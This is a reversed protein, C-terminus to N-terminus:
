EFNILKLVANRKRIITSDAKKALREKDTFYYKYRAKAMSINYDPIKGKVDVGMKFPVPSKLVSIHYDYSLDIHQIGGVALRYRDIEVLAPLIELQRDKILMEVNLSDIYTSDREKFKFTKALERFAENDQVALHTARLAAVSKVSGIDIEMDNNLNASGKISFDAKGELSRIIPFLTDLTPAFDKLQNMKMNRVDIVYQMRAQGNALPKYRLKTQLLAEGSKLSFDHLNLQGNDVRAQGKLNHLMLSGMKLQEIFSNFNFRIHKPLTFRTTDEIPTVPPAATLAPAAMREIVGTKETESTMMGMLEDIDLYRAHLNLDAYLLTDRKDVPFINRVEGDLKMKFNGLKVFANNLRIDHGKVTILSRNVSLPMGMNPINAKLKSFSFSGVPRWRKQQDKEIDFEYSGKDIVFDTQGYHVALNQAGFTTVFHPTRPMQGPGVAIAVSAKEILADISDASQYHLAAVNIHGKLPLRKDGNKSRSLTTHLTQISLKHKKGYQLILKDIDLSGLLGEKEDRKLNLATYPTQFLLEKNTLNIQLKNLKCNGYLSLNKYNFGSDALYSIKGKLDVAANGAIQVGEAFPFTSGIKTLDINGEIDPEIQPTDLLNQILARGKLSIGTGKLVMKNIRIASRERQNFDLLSEVDAELATIQGPFKKYRLTGEQIKLRAQSVPLKGEGYMGDTRLVLDIKGGVDVDATKLYKKPVMKWLNALSPVKMKAQLAVDLVSRDKLRKFTGDLLFDIDNLTLRGNTFSLRQNKKDLKMETDLLSNLQKIFVFGGKAVTLEKSDSQLKLLLHDENYVFGVQLALHPIQCDLKSGKDEYHFAADEIRLSKIRISKIESGSKSTDATVLKGKKLIDYNANGYKDVLLHLQPQRLIVQKIEVEKQLLWKTMNVTGRFDNFTVLTDRRNKSLIYGEQLRAGFHPFSSFFTLEVKKCFLQGELQQNILQLATPTIKEPTFLFNTIFTIALLILTCAFGLSILVKKLINSMYEIEQEAALRKVSEAESLQM